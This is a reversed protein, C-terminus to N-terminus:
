NSIFAGYMLQQLYIDWKMIAYGNAGWEKGWQNLIYVGEEDYGVLNVAHGGLSCGRNNIYYSDKTVDYWGENILFGAQLFNYKHILHKTENITDKNKKNTFLGIKINKSNEFACLQIAANLACELYTGDSDIDGDLIKAIAYIQHSDFQKLKGTKKWYISEALTAASYAACHPTITQNDTPSMLQRNDIKLPSIIGDLNIINGNKDKLKYWDSIIKEESKYINIFDKNNM